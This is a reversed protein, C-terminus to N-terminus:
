NRQGYKKPDEHKVVISLMKDKFGEDTVMFNLMNVKVCVEAPFHPSSLKTTIYFRFDEALEKLVDGLNITLKCGKREIQKELLPEYIPNINELCDKLTIPTGIM